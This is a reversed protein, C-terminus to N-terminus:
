ENLIPADVHYDLKSVVDSYSLTCNCHRACDAATTDIADEFMEEIRRLLQLAEPRSNATLDEVTLGLQTDEAM